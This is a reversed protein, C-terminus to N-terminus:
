LGLREPRPSKGGLLTQVDSENYYIRGGWIAEAIGDARLERSPALEVGRARAWVDLQQADSSFDVIHGLEHRVIADQVDLEASLFREAVKLHFRGSGYVTTTAYGRPSDFHASGGMQMTLQPRFQGGFADFAERLRALVLSQVDEPSRAVFVAM